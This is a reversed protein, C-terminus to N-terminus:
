TTASTTPPTGYSGRRATSRPGARITRGVTPRRGAGARALDHEAMLADQLRDLAAAMGAGTDPDGLM